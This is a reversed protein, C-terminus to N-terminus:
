PRGAAIFAGWAAPRGDGFRARNRELAQLQARQLADVATMGRRGLYHRYFDDMLRSTADDPIAWLSTVLERAGAATFARRLGLIGDGSALGLGTECASLVVLEVGRLDLGSVEEATLIGDDGSDETPERNANALVVGSLAMPNFGMGVWGGPDLASRCEEKAFFGHTAMHLVRQGPLQSAVAAETAHTGRLVVSDEARRRRDWRASLQDVETETNPLAVFDRNVCPSGRMTVTNTHQQPGFDVGGVALLGQGAEHAPRLLDRANELYTLSHTELLYGEDPLPLTAFSVEAVRHDPVLWIREASGIVPELPRWLHEYVAQGRQNVRTALSAGDGQNSLVERWQTIADDITSASGLDIRQVTCEDAIVAFAIYSPTEALTLHVFDVLASGPPLADCISQRDPKGASGAATALQRELAEKTASAENLRRRRDEGSLDTRLTLQSVQRQAERLQQHIARGTDSLRSTRTRETLVGSVAGKWQMVEDWAEEAPVGTDEQLWLDLTQRHKHVFTLAERESLGVLVTSMFAGMIDLAERRHKKAGEVDGLDDLTKSIMEVTISLVPHGPGLIDRRLTEAEELSVLAEVPRGLARLATGRNHLGMAVDLHGDPHLRNALELHRDMAILAEELRGEDSHLAALNALTKAVSPHDPGSEESQMQLARYHLDLAREPDLEGLVMALNELSVAVKPHSEGFANQRITLSREFLRASTAFDGQTELLSALNNLVNALIPHDPGLAQEQLALAAEYLRRAEVYDGQRQLLLGLNVRASAVQPDTPGVARELAAIAEDYATRAREYDGLDDLIVARNNLSSALHLDDDPLLRRRTELALEIHELAEQYRGLMQALGSLNHRTYAIELPDSDASALQNRLARAYLAEAEEHDGQLDVMLAVNNLALAVDPHDPGVDRETIELIERAAQEADALEGEAYAARMADDFQRRLELTDPAALAIGPILFALALRLWM